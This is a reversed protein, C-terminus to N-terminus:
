DKKIIGCAERLCYNCVVEEQTKTIDEAGYVQLANLGLIHNKKEDLEAFIKMSGDRIRVMYCPTAHNESTTDQLPIVEGTQPLYIHDCDPCIIIWSAILDISQCNDCRLAYTNGTNWESVVISIASDVILHSLDGQPMLDIDYVDLSLSHVIDEVEIKKSYYEDQAIDKSWGDVTRYIIDGINILGQITHIKYKGGHVVTACQLCDGCIFAQEVEGDQRGCVPCNLLVYKQSYQQKLTEFLFVEEDVSMDPNSKKVKELAVNADEIIHEQNTETFLGAFKMHIVGKWCDVQTTAIGSCM